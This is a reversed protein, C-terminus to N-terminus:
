HNQVVCAGPVDIEKWFWSRGKWVKPQQLPKAHHSPFIRVTSCRISTASSILSDLADYQPRDICVRLLPGVRSGVSLWGGMLLQGGGEPSLNRPSDGAAGERQRHQRRTPEAHSDCITLNGLMTPVRNHEHRRLVQHDLGKVRCSISSAQRTNQQCPIGM